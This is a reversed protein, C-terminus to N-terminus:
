RSNELERKGERSDVELSRRLKARARHILSLVTGRPQETLDAIEQATYGEVASLFLAEREASRLSSLSKELALLDLVFSTSDETGRDVRTSDILGTLSVTPVLRERRYQNIFRSRIASLLYGRTHPGHAKLVAVWADQLLDEARSRDHTLSFAYRFSRQLLDALDAAPGEM